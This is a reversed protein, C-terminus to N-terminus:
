RLRQSFGGRTILHNPEPDTSLSRNGPWFNMSATSRTTPSVTSSRPWATSRRTSQVGSRRAPEHEEGVHFVELFEDFTENHLNDVTVLWRNPM